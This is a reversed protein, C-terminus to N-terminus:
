YNSILSSSGLIKGFGLLNELRLDLERKIFELDSLAIEQAPVPPRYDPLEIKYNKLKLGFKEIMFTLDELLQDQRIIFFNKVDGDLSLFHQNKLNRLDCINKAKEIQFTGDKSPFWPTQSDIGHEVPATREYCIWPKRIFESFTLGSHNPAHWPTRHMSQLWGLPERVIYIFLTENSHSLKKLCENDTTINKPGRPYHNKIFWHKYGFDNTSSLEINHSLLKELYNTGSNREGFIQYNTLKRNM